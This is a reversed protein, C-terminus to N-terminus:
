LFALKADTAHLRLHFRDEIEHVGTPLLAFIGVTQDGAWLGDFRRQCM